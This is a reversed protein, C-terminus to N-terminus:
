TRSVIVAGQAIRASPYDLLIYENESVKSSLIHSLSVLGASANGSHVIQFASAINSSTIFTGKFQANLMDNLVEKAAVGYPAHLPNAIVLRNNAQNLESIKVTNNPSYYVLQGFAYVFQSTKLALNEDVLMQPRLEDASLFVDFPAGAKIQQYLIGSSASSVTVKQDTTSQYQSVIENLPQKFNSAVAVRLPTAITQFSLITILFFLIRTLM